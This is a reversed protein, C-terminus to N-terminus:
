GRPIGRRTLSRPATLAFAVAGPLSLALTVAGSLALPVSCASSLSRTPALPGSIPPAGAAATTCASGSTMAYAASAAAGTSPAASVQTRPHVYRPLEALARVGNLVAPWTLCRQATRGNGVSLDNALIFLRRM